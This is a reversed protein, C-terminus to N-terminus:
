RVRESCGIVNVGLERYATLLRERQTTDPFPFCDLGVSYTNIKDGLMIKSNILATSSCSIVHKYGGKAILEEVCLYDDDIATYEEREFENKISRPHPAYDVRDSSFSKVLQHMEKSVKEVYSETAVGLRLFNQGVVLVSEGDELVPSASIPLDVLVIKDKAYNTKLGNFYYIRDVYESDAGLEDGRYDSYRMDPFLKLGFNRLWKKQKRIKSASLEASFINIVGDPVLRVNVKV